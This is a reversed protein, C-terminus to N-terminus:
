SQSTLLLRIGFVGFLSATFRSLWKKTAIGVSLRRSLSASMWAILHCWLMGNVNFILGLVIFALAKNESSASIFQPMFALFFVAIKPNFLNTIFGQYYIRKLSAKPKRMVETNGDASSSRLMSIAMYILYAGGLIKVVTFATASSALVASLGLAAAVIHIMTGTGIGLATASGAKFGQTAARGAILLSDPGPIMNLLLGSVVFLWLNEIGLM